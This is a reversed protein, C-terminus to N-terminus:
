PTAKAVLVILLALNYVAAAVMGGALTWQKKGAANGTMAAGFICLVAHVLYRYADAKDIM